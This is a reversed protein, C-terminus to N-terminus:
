RVVTPRLTYSKKLAPKAAFRAELKATYKKSVANKPSAMRVIYKMSAGPVLDFTKKTAKSVTVKWGVPKATTRLEMTQKGCLTANNKVTMAYSLEAGPKGSSRLAKVTVTPAKWVCLSAGGFKVRVTMSAANRSVIGFSVGAVPDLYSSGVQLTPEFIDLGGSRSGPTMDLLTTTMDNGVPGLRVFAGNPIGLEQVTPSFGSVNDYGIPQRYELYYWSTVNGAGDRAQPIKLVKPSVDDEYTYLAYDGDSMVPMIESSRLWGMREKLPAPLLSMRSSAGMIGYRDGYEVMGCNTGVLVGPPDCQWSNAHGFGIIHGLEHHPYTNLTGNMVAARYTQGGTDPVNAITTAFGGSGCEYLPTFVMVTNYETFDIDADAAEMADSMFTWWDCYDGAATPKDITYWAGGNDYVDGTVSVAGESESAYYSAMSDTDTFLRKDLYQETWPGSKDDAIPKAPDDPSTAMIVAIRYNPYADVPTKAFGAVPKLMTLLAIGFACIMAIRRTILLKNM